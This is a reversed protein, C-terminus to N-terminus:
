DIRLRSPTSKGPVDDSYEEIDDMGNVDVPTQYIPAKSSIGNYHRKFVFLAIGSVIIASTWAGVVFHDRSIRIDDDNSASAQEHGRDFESSTEENEIPVTPTQFCNSCSACENAKNNSELTQKVDKFSGNSLFIKMMKMSLEPQDM